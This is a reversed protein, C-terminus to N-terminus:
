RGIDTQRTPILKKSPYGEVKVGRARLSEALAYRFEEDAKKFASKLASVAGNTPIREICCRADERLDKNAFFKSIESVADGDGIESLMWLLERKTQISAASNLAKSIQKCIKDKENKLGPKGSHRAMKWLTRRATRAVEFDKDDMIEVLPQVVVSGLKVLGEAAEARVKDDPSKLKQILEDLERRYGSVATNLGSDTSNVDRNM